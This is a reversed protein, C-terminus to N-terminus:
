LGETEIDYTGGRPGEIFAFRVDDKTHPITKLHQRAMTKSPFGAASNTAIAWTGDWCLWQKVCTNEAIHYARCIHYKFASM